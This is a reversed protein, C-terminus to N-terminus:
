ELPSSDAKFPRGRKRPKGQNEIYRKLVEITVGGTTAVFYSDSWFSDGYLQDKFRSGYNKRVLRATSSKIVRIAETVAIKPSFEALIHM